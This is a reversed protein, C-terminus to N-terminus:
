FASTSDSAKTRGKLGPEVKSGPSFPKQRRARFLQLFRGRFLPMSCSNELLSQSGGKTRTTDDGSVLFTGM